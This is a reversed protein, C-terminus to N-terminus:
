LDSPPKLSLSQTLLHHLVKQTILMLGLRVQVLEPAPDRRRDDGWIRSQAHFVQFAQSLNALVKLTQRATQPQALNDLTDSIQLILNWESAQGRLMQNADLWPIPQKLELVAETGAESRAEDVAIQILEEQAAWRLLSCCRAHAHMAAFIESAHHDFGSASLERRSVSQCVQSRAQSRAQSRVGSEQSRVGLEQSGVGGPDSALGQLWEAVGAHKLRLHIWGPPRVSIVVHRWIRETWLNAAPSSPEFWTPLALNAAIKQALLLAPQAQLSQLKFALASVYELENALENTLKIRNLPIAQFESYQGGM